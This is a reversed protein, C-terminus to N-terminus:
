AGSVSPCAVSVLFPTEACTEVSRKSADSEAANLKAGGGGMGASLAVSSSIISQKVTASLRAHNQTVRACRPTRKQPTDGVMDRGMGRATERGIQLCYRPCPAARRACRACACECACARGASFGHQMNQPMGGKLFLPTPNRCSKKPTDTRVLYWLPVRLSFPRPHPLMKEPKETARTRRM